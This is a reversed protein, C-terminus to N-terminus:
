VNEVNKPLETNEATESEGRTVLALWDIAIMLRDKGFEEKLKTLVTKPRDQFNRAIRYAIIKEDDTLNDTSM